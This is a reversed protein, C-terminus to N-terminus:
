DITHVYRSRQPKFLNISTGQARIERLLDQDGGASDPDAFFKFEPNETVFEVHGDTFVWHSGDAGHNDIDTYGTEPNFGVEDLVSQPELGAQQEYVNYGWWSRVGADNGNTEDGYFPIASPIGGEDLRLGSIYMYSINYKIVDRPLQPPQPVKTVRNPDSYEQNLYATGNWPWRSDEKDRPCVLTELSDMYGSMIPTSSGNGYEGIAGILGFYGRDPSAAPVPGNDWPADGAQILSFMGALGGWVGQEDNEQERTPNPRSPRTVDFRPLWGRFDDAYLTMAQGMGRVHAQCKLDQASQRAKGLAPLLIGILLAIIAIVVLLEILTFARRSTTIM